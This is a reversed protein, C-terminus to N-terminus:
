VRQAFGPLVPPHCMTWSHVTGTGRVRAWDYSASRCAPCRPRPHHRLTGCGTCRQIRLEHARCADWFPAELANPDPHPLATVHAGPPDRGRPRHDVRQRVRGRRRDGPQRGPRPAPAGSRARPECRPHVGRRELRRPHQRSARRRALPDRGIRHVTRGRRRRLVRVARAHASGGDHLSRLGDRRRRGGPARKGTPVAPERDRPGRTRQPRLLVHARVM